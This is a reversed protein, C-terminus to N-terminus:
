PAKPERRHRKDLNSVTGAVDSSIIGRSLTASWRINSQSQTISFQGSNTTNSRLMTPITSACAMTWKPYPTGDSLYGSCNDPTETTVAVCANRFENNYIQINDSQAGPIVTVGSSTQEIYTSKQVRINKGRIYLGNSGGTVKMGDIILGDVGTARNNPQFECAGASSAAFPSSAVPIAQSISAPIIAPRWSWPRAAM